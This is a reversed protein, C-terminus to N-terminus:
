RGRVKAEIADELWATLTVGEREIDAEMEGYLDPPIRAAVRVRKAEPPAPKRGAGPRAGGRTAKKPRSM